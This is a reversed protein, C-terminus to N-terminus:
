CFPVCVIWLPFRDTTNDVRVPNAVERSTFKESAVSDDVDKYDWRFGLLLKSTALQYKKLDLSQLYVPFSSHQSSNALIPLCIYKPM